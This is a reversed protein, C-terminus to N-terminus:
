LSLEALLEAWALRETTPDVLPQLAVSRLRLEQLFAADAECRQLLRSLALADGVPFYGPHDPGLIGVAGDNKTSLIPVGCAIAETVVNAGGETVSTLVFLDAGALLRMAEARPRDGLWRWRENSRSAAAIARARWTEDPAAGLHFMRVGSSTPLAAVAEAAVLPDKVERLHGLAVVELADPPAIRLKTPPRTASQRIVRAKARAAEPVRRIAEPQLVVVASALDISERAEISIPDAYIDTGTLAVIRRGSPLQETHRCISPHSRVAHLAVLLDCPEGEWRERIRVRLGLERLRLTWRLATIRNGNRAGAPAPTVVIANM